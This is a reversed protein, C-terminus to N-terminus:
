AENILRSHSEDRIKVCGQSWIKQMPEEDAPVQPLNRKQLGSIESFKPFLTLLSRPRAGEQRESNHKEAAQPQQALRPCPNGEEIMNIITQLHGEAREL